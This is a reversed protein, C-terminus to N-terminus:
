LDVVKLYVAFTSYKKVFIESIQSIKRTMKIPRKESEVASKTKNIQYSVKWMNFTVIRLDKYFM